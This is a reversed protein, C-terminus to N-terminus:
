LWDTLYEFCVQQERVICNPLKLRIGRPLETCAFLKSCCNYACFFHLSSDIFRSLSRGGSVDWYILPNLMVFPRDCYIGVVINCCYGSQSCIILLILHWKTINLWLFVYWVHNTDTPPRNFWIARTAFHRCCFIVAHVSSCSKKGKLSPIQATKDGKDWQM